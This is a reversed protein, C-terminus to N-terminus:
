SDFERRRPIEELASRRVYEELSQFRDMEHGDKTLQRQRKERKLRKSARAVKSVRDTELCILCEHADSLRPTPYQQDMRPLCLPAVTEWEWQRRHDTFTQCSCPAGVGDKHAMTRNYGNVKATSLSNERERRRHAAAAKRQTARSM